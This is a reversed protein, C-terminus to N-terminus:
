VEVLLQLCAVRAHCAPISRLPRLNFLNFQGFRTIKVCYIFIWNVLGILQFKPMKVGEDGRECRIEGARDRLMIFYGIMWEHVFVEVKLFFNANQLNSQTPNVFENKHRSIISLNGTGHQM